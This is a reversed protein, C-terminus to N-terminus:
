RNAAERPGAPQAWELGRVRSEKALGQVIRSAQHELLLFFHPQIEDGIPLLTAGLTEDVVNEAPQIPEIQLMPTVLDDAAISTSTLARHGGDDAFDPTRPRNHDVIQAEGLVVRTM